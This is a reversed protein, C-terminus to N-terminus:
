LNMRITNKWSIDMGRGHHTQKNSGGVLGEQFELKLEYKGELINAKRTGAGRVGRGRLIELNRIVTRLTPLSLKQFQLHCLMVKMLHDVRALLQTNISLRCYLKDGPQAILRQAFERQFM